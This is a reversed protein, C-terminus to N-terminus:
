ASISRARPRHPSGPQGCGRAQARFIADSKQLGLRLGVETEGYYSKSM